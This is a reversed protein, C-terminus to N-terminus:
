RDPSFQIATRFDLESGLLRLGVSVAVLAVSLSALLELVLSSLFALRLTAMSSRRYSDTVRRILQAQGRALGFVKLTPLGEVLDLFQASLRQLGLLRREARARTTVGVVVMFVPILPLTLGVILAAVLDQGALVVLVTLPVIVALVLQPLFRAFYADLADVGRTALAVLDGTGRRTVAYPGADVARQLLQSRLESKVRASSRHAATETAWVLGARVLLVGALVTLPVRLDAVDAGGLFGRDVVDALLWAQLVVLVATVAGVLVAVV